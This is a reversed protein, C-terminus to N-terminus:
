QKIANRLIKFELITKAILKSSKGMVWILLLGGGTIAAYRVWKNKELIEIIAEKDIPRTKM